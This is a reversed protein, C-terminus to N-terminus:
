WGGDVLKEAIRGFDEESDFRILIKGKGKANRKIAVHTRLRNALKERLLQQSDSLVAAERISHKVSTNKSSQYLEPDKVLLEVQRVSLENEVIEKFVFLQTSTDALALLARAHGMTLLKNRIGLQIEAPLKLLRLYNAVTSRDKGVRESLTEQTLNCEDILRKFAIAIEVPDLDTRLTNEVLAMELMSIDNAIRIYAPVETLGAVQAARLRREGSILQYQDYGTKRVTLPQIIGHQKISEALELLQQKEFNSRPQFPNAQIFSVPITSVSGAVRLNAEDSFRTTIDTDTNELLAKLGRGLSRKNSDM